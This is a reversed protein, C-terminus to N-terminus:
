ELFEGLSSILMDGQKCYNATPGLELQIYRIWLGAQRKRLWKLIIREHTCRDPMLGIENLSEPFIDAHMKCSGRMSYKWGREDEKM